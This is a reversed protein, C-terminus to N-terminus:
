DDISQYIVQRFLNNLNDSSSQTQKMIVGIIKEKPDAFYNTNFYGGWEFTGESGKAGKEAGAKNLLGFALGYSSNAKDGGLLEGVQNSLITEITTRSLFRKGNVEGGNLYMLLFAAYDRATSSLGAGGSFFAKAGKIPYDTDYFTNPYRVWQGNQPKQISVLRSAKAEPLYFYTDNMGLPEFLRKRLFEDFPMGSIIEIFYGLVDLGESYVYKEGPHHHLPLKALKKINDGIRVPQTTFLDVIGAKYYLAKFREDGDIVGYGLGSTHTLLHRITIESKVPETTYTSDQFKFTKLVTQNKFEPIYKSIPDDLQFKGEEWLMMVATSTIAKSMSAIRFIDDRKLPRNSANDAMGFAKHYVIKGNRVVIAAVGPVSGQMVANQLVGDMRSLRETSIGVTEPAADGLGPTNKISKTQANAQTFAIFFVPFVFLSLKM